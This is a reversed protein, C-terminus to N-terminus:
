TSLQTFVVTPALYPLPRKRFHLTVIDSSPPFDQQSLSLLQNDSAYLRIWRFLNEEEKFYETLASPFDLKDIKYSGDKIFTKPFVEITREVHIHPLLFVPDLLRYIQLQQDEYESLEFWEIRDSSAKVRRAERRIRIFPPLEEGLNNITIEDPEYELMISTLENNIFVSAFIMREEKFRASLKALSNM